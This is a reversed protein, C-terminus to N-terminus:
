GYSLEDSNEISYPSYWLVLSWAGFRLSCVL